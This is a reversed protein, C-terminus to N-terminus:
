EIVLLQNEDLYNILFLIDDSCNNTLISCEFENIIDIKSDDKWKPESYNINRKNIKIDWFKNFYIDYEVDERDWQLSISIKNYWNTYGYFDYNIVWLRYISFWLWKIINEEDEITKALNESKMIDKDIFINELEEINYVINNLETKNNDVNDKITNNWCSTLIICFIFIFLKKM